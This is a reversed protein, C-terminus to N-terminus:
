RQSLILSFSSDAIYWREGFLFSLFYFFIYISCDSIKEWSPLFFSLFYLFIQSEHVTPLIGDKGLLCFSIIPFLSFHIQSSEHVTPLIGHLCFLFVMKEWSPLLFLFSLFYLFHIKFSIIPFLSFCRKGLLCFFHYSIFFHIQSSEHVTPLIGDKGLLFLSFLFSLFREWSPLLFHITPLIGDKGLLCFFHYSIFFHIQSSEHVTPLIGDKGLLCFLFSLFYLFHIQSSEHVTPLIGDKGLLCFFHYSIFFIYRLLFAIYWREWSPLLFSLSIFFIYRLLNMFLRCYVMKGLLCFFHYSFLFSSSIFSFVMGLLCFLFSLFYLFHIQSSKHVTPLIGDKQYSSLFTDSFHFSIGDKGLLCFFSITPLIGDKEWFFFFSFIIPIYWREWFAFFIYRLLNMFLRCYVMKGLFAFFFHYRLLFSLFVMKELLCFSSEHFCDSFYSGDIENKWSPLLFSLFYLFHITPLIGDKGLLCFFHYPFYLFHRESFFHHVSFHIQFHYDAIYWRKGLLCFFHYSIFFIYRLLNMFLRCYVMKEWSPLFFHYSIFFIYRLLNMFLRAYVMKGLFAFLFSLFYLFHIQSSEHVTPLIGDKGLLCFSIIPFYLFILHNM